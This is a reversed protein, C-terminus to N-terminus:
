QGGIMKEIQEQADKLERDLVQLAKRVEKAKDEFAPSQLESQMTDQVGKLIRSIKFSTNKSSDEKQIDYYDWAM